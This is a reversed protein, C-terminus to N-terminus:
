SSYSFRKIGLGNVYALHASKTAFLQLIFTVIVAIAKAVELIWADLSQYDYTPYFKLAIALGIIALLNLAASWQQATGDNVVGVGKLVNIILAIVFPVGTLISFLMFAQDLPILFFVAVATIVGALAIPLGIAKLLDELNLKM